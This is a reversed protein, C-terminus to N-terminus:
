RCKVKKPPTRKYAKVNVTKRGSKKGVRVKRTKCPM